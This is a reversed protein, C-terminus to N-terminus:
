RGLQQCLLEDGSPELIYDSILETATKRQGSSQGNTSSLLYPVCAWKSVGIPLELNFKHDWFEPDM